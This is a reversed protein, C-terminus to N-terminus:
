KKNIIPLRELCTPCTVYDKFKMGFEDLKVGILEAYPVVKKCYTQILIADNTLGQTIHCAHVINKNKDKCIFGDFERNLQEATKNYPYLEMTGDSLNECLKKHNRIEEENKRYYEFLEDVGTKIAMSSDIYNMANNTEAIKNIKLGLQSNSLSMLIKEYVPTHTISFVEDTKLRNIVDKVFLGYNLRTIYSKAFDLTNAMREQGNKKLYDQIDNIESIVSNLSMTSGGSM